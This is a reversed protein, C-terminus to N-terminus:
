SAADDDDAPNDVEVGLAAAAAENEAAIREAGLAAQRQEAMEVSTERLAALEAILEGHRAQNAQLISEASAATRDAAESAEQLGEAAATRETVAAAARADAAESAVVADAFRQ